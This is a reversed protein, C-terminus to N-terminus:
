SKQTAIGQDLLITSSFLVALSTAGLGSYFGLKSLTVGNGGQTCPCLFCPASASLNSLISFFIFIKLERPYFFWPCSFPPSTLTVRKQAGRKEEWIGKSMMWKQSSSLPFSARWLGTRGSWQVLEPRNLLDESPRSSKCAPCLQAQKKADKQPGLTHDPPVTGGKDRTNSTSSIRYALLYTASLFLTMHFYSCDQSNLLFFFTPFSFM